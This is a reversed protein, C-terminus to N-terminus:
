LDVIEGAEPIIRVNPVTLNTLVNLVTQGIVMDLDIRGTRDILDSANQTAEGVETEEDRNIESVICTLFKPRRYHQLLDLGGLVAHLQDASRIREYRNRDLTDLSISLSVSLDDVQQV